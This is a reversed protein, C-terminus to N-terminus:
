HRPPEVFPDSKLPDCAGKVYEYGPMPFPYTNNQFDWAWVPMSSMIGGNEGTCSDNMGVFADSAVRCQCVLPKEPDSPHPNETCPAADCIAYHRDGSYGSATPDCATWKLKLVDCWGRYSYTSVWPYKVDDVEYQASAIAKCVPAEDVACPHGDTCEAETRQKVAADQIEGTAVIHHEDVRLCDCDARAGNMKCDHSATCLAHWGTCVVFAQPMADLHDRRSEAVSGESQPAERARADVLHLNAMALLVLAKCVLSTLPKM